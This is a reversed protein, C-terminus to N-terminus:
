FHLCPELFFTECSKKERQLNKKKKRDSELTRLHVVQVAVQAPGIDCDSKM